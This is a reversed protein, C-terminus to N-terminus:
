QKHNHTIYFGRSQPPGPGSPDSAGFLFLDHVTNTIRFAIRVKTEKFLHTIKHVLPSYCTFAKWTESNQTANTDRGPNNWRQQLQSKLKQILIHPFNSSKATYQITLWENNLKMTPLVDILFKANAERGSFELYRPTKLVSVETEEEKFNARPWVWVASPGRTALSSRKESFEELLVYNVHVLANRNATEAREFKV